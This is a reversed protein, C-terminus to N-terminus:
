VKGLSATAFSIVFLAISCCLMHVLLAEQHSPAILKPLSNKRQQESKHLLDILCLKEITCFMVSLSVHQNAKLYANAYRSSVYCEKCQWSTRLVSLHTSCELVQGKKCPWSCQPKQITQLGQWSDHTGSQGFKM